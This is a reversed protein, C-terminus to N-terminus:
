FRRAILSRKLFIAKEPCIEHCCLCTVCKKYDFTPYSKGSEMTIADVPCMQECKGCKICSKHRLAPRIWLLKGILRVLFNPALQAFRSSTMPLEFPKDLILDELKAGPIEINNLNSEGLGKEAAIRTTEAMKPMGVIKEAVRNLAVADKSAMILGVDKRLDGSAPGEGEMGYIGDLFSLVPVAQSFIEVLLEGFDKPKPFQKHYEAKRFGPVIGYMNKIALTMAMLSHTKLRPFNIIADFDDLAKTIHLTFRGSEIVHVGAIEFNVIEIGMKKAVETMGTNDFVRKVGKHAGGPSDGLGLQVGFALLSKAVAEIVAPHSTVGKKPDRASLLNPKLLIRSGPSIFREWGGLDDLIKEIASDVNSQEYNESKAIAVKSVM